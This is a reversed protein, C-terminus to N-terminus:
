IKPFDYCRIFQFLLEVRSVEQQYTRAEIMLENVTTAKVSTQLRLLEAEKARLSAELSAIRVKLTSVLAPFPREKLGAMSAEVM